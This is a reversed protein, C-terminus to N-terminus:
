YSWGCWICRAGFVKGNEKGIDFDGRIVFLENNENFKIRTPATSANCRPCFYHTEKHKGWVVVRKDM